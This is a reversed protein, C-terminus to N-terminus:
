VSAVAVGDLYVNAIGLQPGRWGIWSVGTGTFRLTARATAEVSFAVSGGSWGGPTGTYNQTWIRIYEVATTTEEISITSGTTNAVSVTGAASTTTNGAADRAVATLTHSANSATTTDWEVTFPAATDETGLNAGDLLFQVGAVGVNDSATATITTTGSVTAGSAPATMSVTPPTTDNFVTVTVAASMTTNGAADRAVATLTHSANTATRTDWAVAYPAATDETGLNAGDIKFQVGVVGVNDSATATITTTGSVTAGSAPATMSVTPPTTDNSVTVTVAASTTTNGAADRARATLTHSGNAATRTDWAVAYPAATDETGLNAGDLLFQVGAVGVNDSATATITTTGSVTAGSAPATVSVTPPTTDNFVTVTVAASTTTNGAADRAVATLTHSANTATRTDWAVAYPAATDETGLNAGDIKFQVGVVGVNDSATATITTTGSVTAGSAPATMSVTPPTTDNSVTVTVAASTTTNGAADRARATLTHSGNAATRTDWAVAYPAATDETGLNAGDLLFQVGVVGVNDSATATITTTGSVTAGSAPATM